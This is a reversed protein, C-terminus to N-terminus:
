WTRDDAVQESFGVKVVQKLESHEKRFVGGCVYGTGM